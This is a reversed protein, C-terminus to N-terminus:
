GFSEKRMTNQLFLLRPPKALLLVQCFAQASCYKATSKIVAETLAVNVGEYFTWRSHQAEDKTM